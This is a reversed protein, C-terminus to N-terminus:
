FIESMNRCHYKKIYCAQVLWDRNQNTDQSPNKIGYESFLATNITKDVLFIPLFICYFLIPGILVVVSAGSIYQGDSVRPDCTWTGAVRVNAALVDTSGSGLAVTHELLWRERNESELGIYPQWRKIMNLRRGAQTEEEEQDAVAGGIPSPPPVDIYGAATTYRCWERWIEQFGLHTAGDGHWHKIQHRSKMFHRIVSERHGCRILINRYWRSLGVMEDKTLTSM